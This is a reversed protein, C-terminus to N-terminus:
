LKFRRIIGLKNHNIHSLLFCYFLAVIGRTPQQCSVPLCIGKGVGFKQVTFYEAGYKGLDAAKM